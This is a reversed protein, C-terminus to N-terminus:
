SFDASKGMHEVHVNIATATVTGTVTDPAGPKTGHLYKEVAKKLEARRCRWDSKKSIRTGDFSEFLDPLKPDNVDTPEGVTCDEGYFEVFEPNYVEGAAGGSGAQGGSNGSNSGGTAFGGGGAGTGGGTGLNPAGGTGLPDLTEGSGCAFAMLSLGMALVTWQVTGSRVLKAM